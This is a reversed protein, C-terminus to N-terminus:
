KNSLHPQLLIQQKQSFYSVEYDRGLECIIKEWLQLGQHEFDRLEKESFRKSNLPDDINLQNDYKRQWLLLEDLTQQTLSLTAPDIPGINHGDNENWWTPWCYYDNMIKIKKKM